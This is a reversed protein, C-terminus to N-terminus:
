LKIVQAMIENGTVDLIAISNYNSGSTPSGPNFMRIGSYIEDAQVHTHGYLIISPNYQVFERYLRHKIDFPSGRGHSVCIIFRGNIDLVESIPLSINSPDMNGEVACLPAITSLEILADGSVVDGCHIILDVGKFADYVKQPLNKARVPIHTDSIVGIKKINNVARM